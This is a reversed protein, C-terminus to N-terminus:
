LRKDGAISECEQYAINQRLKYALAQTPPHIYTYLTQELRLTM